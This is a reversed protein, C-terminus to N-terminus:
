QHEYLSKVWGWVTKTWYNPKEKTQKHQLCIADGEAVPKPDTSVVEAGM